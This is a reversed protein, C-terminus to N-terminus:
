SENCGISLEGVLEEESQILEAKAKEALDVLEQARRRFLLGEESLNVNYKGRNLLKVELEEELQMLQRSLTPQTVHLSKAAKTINEERAVTIFYRLVRIEM